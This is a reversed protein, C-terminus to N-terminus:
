DPDMFHYVIEMAVDDDEEYFLGPWPRPVNNFTNVVWQGFRLGQFKEREWLQLVEQFDHESENPMNGFRMSMPIFRRLKM